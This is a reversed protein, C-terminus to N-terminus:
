AAVSVLTNAKFRTFDLVAKRENDPLQKVLHTIEHVIPDGEGPSEILLGAMTFVKELPESLGIAIRRAAESTVPYDNKDDDLIRSLTSASLDARKALEAATWGRRSLESELWNRFTM